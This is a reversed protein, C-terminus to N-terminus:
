RRPRNGYQQRYCRSFHSYSQFGCALAVDTLRMATHQILERAQTLRIQRYVITPTTGFQARFLSELQRV